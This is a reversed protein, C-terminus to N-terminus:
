INGNDFVVTQLQGSLIKFLADHIDSAMGRKFIIRSNELGKVQSGFAIVITENEKGKDNQTVYIRDCITTM